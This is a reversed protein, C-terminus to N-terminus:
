RHRKPSSVAILPAQALEEVPKAARIAALMVQFDEYELEECDCM